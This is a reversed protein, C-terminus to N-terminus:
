DYTYLSFWHFMSGTQEKLDFCRCSITLHECSFRDTKMKGEARLSDSLLAQTYDPEEVNIDM